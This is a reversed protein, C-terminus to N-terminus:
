KRKASRNKAAMKQQLSSYKGSSKGAATSATSPLKMTKGNQLSVHIQSQDKKQMVKRVGGGGAASAVSAGFSKSSGDNFSSKSWKAAV